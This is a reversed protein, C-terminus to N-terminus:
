GSNRGEEQRVGDCEVRKGTNALAVLSGLHWDCRV